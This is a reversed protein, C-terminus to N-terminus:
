IDGVKVHFAVINDNTLKEAKHNTSNGLIQNLPPEVLLGCLMM